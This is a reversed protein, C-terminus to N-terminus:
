LSNEFSVGEKAKKLIQKETSYKLRKTAEEFPLWAVESSEEGFGEPLDKVWEMIYFTIFKLIKQKDPSTFFIKISGIKSIIKAEIGGEEAVERLAAKQLSEEDAKIDGRGM